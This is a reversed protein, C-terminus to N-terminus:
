LLVSLSLSISFFAAVTAVLLVSSCFTQQGYIGGFVPYVSLVPMAAFLIATVKLIPDVGPVLSFALAVFLPHLVLKGIM